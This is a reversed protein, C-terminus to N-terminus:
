VILSLIVCFLAAGWAYYAFGSYGTRTAMLRIMGIAIYGGAFAAVASILCSLFIMFSFVGIGQTAIVILDLVILVILAPASLLLAWNLAYSRDAGRSLAACTGCGIRSIGSLSGLASCTGVLLADLASMSRPGKNGRILHEPLYLILGNIVLFFAVTGLTYTDPGVFRLIVYGIVMPVAATRIFRLELWTSRDATGARGSRRNMRRQERGFRSFLNACRLLLAAFLAVRVFLSRMQVSGDLHLMHDFIIQHASSSIPLFESVGSVFGYLLDALLNM